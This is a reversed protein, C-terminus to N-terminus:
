SIHGHTRTYLSLGRLSPEHTSPTPCQNFIYTWTSMYVPILGKLITRPNIPVIILTTYVYVYLSLGRLSPEPTLPAPFQNFPYKREHMRVLIRGKMITRPNIPAILPTHVSLYLSLGNSSSEPIMSPEHIWPVPCQTVWSSSVGKIMTATYRM